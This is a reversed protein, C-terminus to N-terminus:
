GDLRELESLEVRVGGLNLAAVAAPDIPYPYTWSSDVHLRGWSEGGSSGGGSNTLDVYSGDETWIGLPGDWLAFNIDDFRLPSSEEDETLGPEYRGVQRMTMDVPALVQFSMVVETSSFAFGTFRLPVERLPPKGMTVEVGGCKYRVAPITKELTFTFEIPGPIHFGKHQFFSINELHFTIEPREVYNYLPVSIEFTLTDDERSLLQFFPFIKSYGQALRERAEAEDYNKGLRGKESELWQDERLSVYCEATHLGNGYPGTPGPVYDEPLGPVEPSKIVLSLLLTEGDWSAANLTIEAEGEIRSQGIVTSTRGLVEESEEPSQYNVGRSPFWQSFQGTVVAVACASLLLLAAVLAILRWNVRRGPRPETLERRRMWGWPDALLLMRERLYSPSFDPEAADASQLVEAYQALNADMLGRRLADEFRTM